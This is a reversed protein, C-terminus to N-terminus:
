VLQETYCEPLGDSLLWCSVKQTEAKHGGGCLISSQYQLTDLIGTLVM